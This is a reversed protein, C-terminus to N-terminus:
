PRVRRGRGEQDRGVLAEFEATGPAVHRISPVAAFASDASVLADPASAIATAALLADFADLREYREFLNLADRVHGADTALLPALLVAYDRALSAASRRDHRRARVHAFEHIVEPTTTGHIRGQRLADILRRSPERLPHEHGVAYVLV